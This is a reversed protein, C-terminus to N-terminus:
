PWVRQHDAAARDHIARAALGAIRIDRDRATQHRRDPGIETRAVLLDIRAAHDHRRAEDVGVRMVIRLGGPAAPNRRRGPVADGGRHDAVAADAESGAPGVLPLRQHLEHLADLVDGTGHQVFPQRPGPLAELLVHIREVGPGIVEVDRRLHRMRRHADEDHALPAHLSLGRRGLVVRGHGRKRRRTHAGASQTEGGRAREVVLRQVAARDRRQGRGLVLEGRDGGGHARDAGAPQLHDGVEVIEVLLEGHQAAHDLAAPPRHRDGDELVVARGVAPAAEEGMDCLRVARAQRHDALCERTGGTDQEAEFDRDIGEGAPRAPLRDGM